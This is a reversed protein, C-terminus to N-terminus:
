REILKKHNPLEQQFTSQHNNMVKMVIGDGIEEKILMIGNM